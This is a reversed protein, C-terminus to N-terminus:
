YSKLYQVTDYYKNNFRYRFQKNSYELKSYRNLYDLIYICYKRMNSYKDDFHLKLTTNNTSNTECVVPPLASEDTNLSSVTDSLIYLNYSINMDIYLFWIVDFLGYKIAIKFITDTDNNILSLEMIETLNNKALLEKIELIRNQSFQEFFKALLNHM